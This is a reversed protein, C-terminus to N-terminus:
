GSMRVFAAREDTSYRTQSRISDVLVRTSWTLHLDGETRDNAVVVFCLPHDADDTPV